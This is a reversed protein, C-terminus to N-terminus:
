PDPGPCRPPESREPPPRRCTPQNHRTENPPHHSSTVVTPSKLHHGCLPAGGNAAASHQEWQRAFSGHSPELSCPQGASAQRASGGRGKAQRKGGVCRGAAQGGWAGVGCPRGPPPPEPHRGGCPRGPGSGWRLRRGLVAPRAAPWPRTPPPQHGAPWCPPAACRPAPHPPSLLPVAPPTGAHLEMRCPLPVAPPTGVHLEM